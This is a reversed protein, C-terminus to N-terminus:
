LVEVLGVGASTGLRNAGAALMARACGITRIGGSAKVGMDAGVVSRMLAIDGVTAGPKILGTSSKVFAAGAAKALVCGSVKADHSLVGTELIVKVLAPAASEVVARIDMFVQRYSREKLARYDIVMDIESAGARVAAKADATKIMASCAGDPFGVVTAIAVDGNLNEKCLAVWQPQVCVAAFQYRVAEQCLRRIDAESASVDLLTHDISKALSM